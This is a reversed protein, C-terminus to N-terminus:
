RGNAIHRKKACLPIVGHRHALTDPDALGYIAAKGKGDKGRRGSSHKILLGQKALSLLTRAATRHPVKAFEAVARGPCTVRLMGRRETEAIVYGMVAIETADLGDLGDTIRDTWMYALEVADDRIEEATRMGVNRIKAVGHGWAKRVSKYATPMSSTRGDKRTMFQNWLRSKHGTIEVIYESETWGRRYASMAIRMCMTWIKRHDSAEKDPLGFLIADVAWGPLARNLTRKTSDTLTASM